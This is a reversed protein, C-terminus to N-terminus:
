GGRWMPPPVYTKIATPLNQQLSLSKFILHALSNLWSVIDLVQNTTLYIEVRNGIKKRSFQRDFLEFSKNAKNKELYDLLGKSMAQRNHVLTHRVMSLLDFWQLINVQLYNTSEHRKFFDSLNKTFKILGKNNTGASKKILRTTEEIPLILPAKLLKTEVLKSPNSVFYESLTRIFFSEFVEYSNAVALGCVKSSINEIEDALNELTLDYDFNPATLNDTQPSQSLDRFFTVSSTIGRGGINEITRYHKYGDLMATTAHLRGSISMIEEFYDNLAPLLYNAM